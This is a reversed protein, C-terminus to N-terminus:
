TDAIIENKENDCYIHIELSAGMQAIQFLTDPELRLFSDLKDNRTFFGCFFNPIVGTDGLKKIASIHPKLIDILYRLHDELSRESSLLSSLGWYGTPYRRHPHKEVIDGKSYAETPNIGIRSSIAPPNVIDGVFRFTVVTEDSTSQSPNM